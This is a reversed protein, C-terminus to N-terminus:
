DKLYKENELSIKKILVNTKEKGLLQELHSKSQELLLDFFLRRERAPKKAVDSWESYNSKEIAGKAGYRFAGKISLEDIEPFSKKAITAFVKIKDEQKKSGITAVENEKNREGYLCIWRDICGSLCCLGVFFRQSKGITIPSKIKRCYEKSFALRVPTYAGM